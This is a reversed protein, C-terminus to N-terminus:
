GNVGRSGQQHASKMPVVSGQKQQKVYAQRSTKGQLKRRRDLITQSKAQTCNSGEEDLHEAQPGHGLYHCSLSLKALVDADIQTKSQTNGHPNM